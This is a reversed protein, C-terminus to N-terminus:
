ELIAGEEDSLVHIAVRKRMQARQWQKPEVSSDKSAQAEALLPMASARLVFILGPSPEAIFHIKKSMGSLHWICSLAFRLLSLPAM